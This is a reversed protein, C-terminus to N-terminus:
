FHCYCDRIMIAFWSWFALHYTYQTFFSVQSLIQQIAFVCLHWLPNIFNHWYKTKSTKKHTSNSYTALVSSDRRMLASAHTQYRKFRTVKHHQSCGFEFLSLQHSFQHNKFVNRVIRIVCVFVSLSM